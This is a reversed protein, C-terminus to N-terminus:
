FHVIDKERRSSNQRLSGRLFPAAFRQGNLKSHLADRLPSAQAAADALVRMVRWVLAPM